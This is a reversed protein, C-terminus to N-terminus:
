KILLSGAGSTIGAINELARTPSGLYNGMDDSQQARMRAVRARFEGEKAIAAKEQDMLVAEHAQRLLDNATIASGRMGMQIKQEGQLKIAKRQFIALERATQFRTLEEQDRYMAANLYELKRQQSDAQFRGYMQMFTGAIFLAPGM